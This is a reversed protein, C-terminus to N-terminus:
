NPKEEKPKKEDAYKPVLDMGDPAKGPKDSKYDPNMSDYWYLIKREPKAPHQSHGKMQGKPATQESQQNTSHDQQPKKEPEAGSGHSMGPMNMGGMASKLKSEADVLFNASTVIREGPKLGSTVIVKGDVTAGAEIKRPAFYGNDLAVFVVKESGSDLVAEKPAVVQRGYDIRLEVTAYMDPKLDLKPNPIDIRAKVTRTANDVQPYIYTVRGTYSRTPFYTLSVRATQGPKVEPAEYEYLDAMIWVNSLDVISYLDTEPMVKQKPFANRTIVFGGAPAYLMTVKTPKGTKELQQIQEDTFDWLELRKRASQLLARAGVSAEKFPSPGLEEAGRIALLYEEQTQLLDPSYISLMPQGKKILQGVFDVYVDEIWGDVKTHIHSIRTEDYTLRGVTRITKAVSEVAVNGYTVGIMQQKEPSIRFAGEPLNAPAEGGTEYVPVLDMGDPAKGPHDYRHSPNMADVWYLVKLKSAAGEEGKQEPAGAQNSSSPRILKILSDRKLYGIGSLVIVILIAALVTWRGRKRKPPAPPVSAESVPPAESSVSPPAPEEVSGREEERETIRDQRETPSKEGSTKTGEKM